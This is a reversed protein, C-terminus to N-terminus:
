PESGNTLAPTAIAATLVAIAQAVQEHQQRTLSIQSCLNDLLALAETPTM